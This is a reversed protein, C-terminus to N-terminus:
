VVSKRDVVPEDLYVAADLAAQQGPIDLMGKVGLALLAVGLAILIIKGIKM